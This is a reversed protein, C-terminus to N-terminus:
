HYKSINGFRYNKLIVCMIKSVHLIVTLLLKGKTMFIEIDDGRLYIYYYFAQHPYDLIVVIHYEPLHLFIM